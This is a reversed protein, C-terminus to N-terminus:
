FKVYWPPLPRTATASAAILLEDDRIRVPWLREFDADSMGAYKLRASAKLAAEAEADRADSKAKEIAAMEAEFAKRAADNERQSRELQEPTVNFVPRGDNLIM